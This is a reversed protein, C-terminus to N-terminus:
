RAIVAGVQELTIGTYVYYDVTKRRTITDYSVPSIRQQCQVEVTRKEINVDFNTTRIRAWGPVKGGEIFEEEFGRLAEIVLGAFVSDWVGERRPFTLLLAIVRRRLVPDRCKHGTFWLPIIVGSDFCFKPIKPAPSCNLLAESLDVIDRYINYYADFAMEDQVLSKIAGMYTAKMQLELTICAKKQDLNKFDSGNKLPAFAAMWHHLSDTLAAQAKFVEPPIVESTSGPTYAGTLSGERAIRALGQSVFSVAFRVILGYFTGAEDLTSFTLPMRQLSQPVDIKLPLAAPASAQPPRDKTPPRLQISLRTFVHALVNEDDSPEPAPAAKLREKWEMLLRTGIRIQQVAVEHNGLWGEVALFVLCTMLTTRFDKGAELQAYKIARAYQQIAYQYHHSATNGFDRRAADRIHGQSRARSTMDLAGLAVIAHRITDRAECAQLFMLRLRGMEINPFIEYATNKRFIEFCMSEEDSEFNTLSPATYLTQHARINHFKPLLIAKPRQVVSKVRKPPPYGDCQIGFKTCRKCFPRREDCKVRRVKCTLCGSKVKPHSRRKGHVKEAVPETRHM